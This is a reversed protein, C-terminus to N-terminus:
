KAWIATVCYGDSYVILEKLGESDTKKEINFTYQPAWLDDRLGGYIHYKRATRVILTHLYVKGPTGHQNTTACIEGSISLVNEKIKLHSVSGGSGGISDHYSRGICDLASGHQIYLRSGIQLDFIDHEGIEIGYLKAVYFDSIMQIISQPLEM